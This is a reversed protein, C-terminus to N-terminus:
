SLDGIKVYLAKARALQQRTFGMETEISNVLENTALQGRSQLIRANWAARRANFVEEPWEAAFLEGEIKMIENHKAEATKFGEGGENVVRDFARAAKYAKQAAALRAKIEAIDSM